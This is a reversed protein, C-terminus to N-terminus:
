FTGSNSLLLSTYSISFLNFSTAFSQLVTQFTKKLTCRCTNNIEFVYNLYVSNLDM